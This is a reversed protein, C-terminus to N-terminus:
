TEDERHMTVDCFIEVCCWLRSTYTLGSIVLVLNCAALFIPLCKLDTDIDTQDVCVKDLWLNPSRGYANRSEECWAELASWKLEADDHWSHSLFADCEGVRCRTALAHLDSRGAGVVDLPGGGFVIDSNM